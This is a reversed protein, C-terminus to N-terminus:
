SLLLFVVARVSGLPPDGAGGGRGAACRGTGANGSREALRGDAPSGPGRAMADAGGSGLLNVRPSLLGPVAASSLCLTQSATLVDTNITPTHPPPSPPPCTTDSM